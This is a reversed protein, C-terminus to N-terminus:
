TPEYEPLGGNEYCLHSHAVVLTYDTTELRHGGPEFTLTM